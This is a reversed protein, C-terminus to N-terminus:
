ILRQSSHWEIGWRRALTTFLLYRKGAVVNWLLAL